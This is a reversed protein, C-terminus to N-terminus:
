SKRVTGQGIQSQVQAAKTMPAFVAWGDGVVAEERQGFAQNMGLTFKVYADRDSSSKFTVIDAGDCKARDKRPMENQQLRSSVEAHACGLKAAITKADLPGSSSQATAGGGCGALLIAGAAIPVIFRVKM